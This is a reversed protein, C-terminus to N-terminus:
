KLNKVVFASSSYPGKGKQKGAELLDLMEPYSVLFNHEDVFNFVYHTANSPLKAVLLNGKILAKKVYWEESKEGGNLTYLLQGKVVKSGRGKFQAWVSNGERDMGNAVGVCVKDKHLLQGKYHPNRYPYSANMEDLRRFLEKRMQEAKDPMKAVLNEAEEIDVRSSPNPYNKYLQYLELKPKTPMYNYVLKWGNVRLTSQQAVGHPFHWIMSNRIEGMSDKVLSASQPNIELFKSLDSGDLNQERPRQTGTWGLITPYFDLGNVMVNSEQNAKIKPGTIIFPVRVGGEKANIKGKDLPYNDTIIEGPVKEMGGNDSTLIIYTNEILKHGPWRPDETEELYNIIQGIYADFMEVMACYYPNQQGNLSWGVPDVPFDVGLKDCYKKLLDKSRSHIPTHVLWAAYYLFFPNEKNKAIFEIADITTQDRPYGNEDLKYPDDKKNTAFGTLRHPRMARSEGLDHRTFTFGQDEPQPFANHDIAMHWKGTHGTAYGNGQLAEAITVESLKMRGSYWPDMVPHATKNYPTPPNGGVVHTKQAVAPHRGSMIACRTPACTPAPSYGQRFLVGKKALADIHPTEMPSELDIDYCGVDQWGLDDALLLVINPKDPRDIINKEHSIGSHQSSVQNTHLSNFSLSKAPKVFNSVLFNDAASLKLSFSFLVLLFYKM